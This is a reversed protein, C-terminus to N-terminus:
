NPDSKEVVRVDRNVVGQNTCPDLLRYVKAQDVYGVFFLKRSTADDYAVLGFIKLYKEKPKKKSWAM